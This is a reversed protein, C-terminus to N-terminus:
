NERASDLEITQTWLLAYTIGVNWYSITDMSIWIFGCLAKKTGILWKFHKYCKM